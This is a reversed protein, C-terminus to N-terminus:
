HEPFLFTMEARLQWDAGTLDPKVVNYYASLQANVAQHGIEFVRGIGGGLPVTWRNDSDAEWDATMLPASTLYWGKSLNYNFFPQFTLSNVDSRDDDGAFSWINFALFGTTIHLPKVSLFTVLAPGASWKGTGLVDSTATPFQLVPGVGWVLGVDPALEIPKSPSFFLEPTLDGLGFIDRGFDSGATQELEQLEPGPSLFPEQYIVPLIPRIILNWDENLHVPFVPQINLVNQVNDTNGIGFNTNNQFPVSILDAIPNQAAERLADGEQAYSAPIAILVAATLAPVYSWFAHPRM